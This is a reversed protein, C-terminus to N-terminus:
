QTVYLVVTSKSRVHWGPLPFSSYVMGAPTGLKQPQVQVILGAHELQTELAALTTTKLHHPMQIFNAHLYQAFAQKLVQKYANNLNNSNAKLLHKLNRQYRKIAAKSMGAYASQNTTLAATSNSTLARAQPSALFQAHVQAGYQKEFSTELDQDSPVPTHYDLYPLPEIWEAARTLADPTASHASLYAQLRPTARDIIEDGKLFFASNPYIWLSDDSKDAPILAVPAGLTASIDGSSGGLRPPLVNAAHPLHIPLSGSFNTWGVLRGDKFKLSGNQYSWLETEGHGATSPKTLRKASHPLGIVAIVDDVSALRSFTTHAGTIGQRGVDLHEWHDVIGRDIEISGNGYYMM